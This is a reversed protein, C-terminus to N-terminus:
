YRQVKILDLYHKFKTVLIAKTTMDASNEVIAIKTVGIDGQTIVDRIFHMRVDIHKTREHYM